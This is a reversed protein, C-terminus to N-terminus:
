RRSIPRAVDVVIIENDDAVAPPGLHRGASFPYNNDNLILIQRGGLFAVDEITEFPFAFTRGLGVDGPAAPLSIARPDDLTMLDVLLSKGVVGGPTGLTIEQITKFGDLRGQSPDREIVLGSTPGTMIFDGINTGRADLPYRWASGTYRRTRLDFQHILLTKPDDGALPLELLPLLTRGDSALAMGEFGGSRAARFPHDLATVRYPWFLGALWPTNKGDEDQLNTGDDSGAAAPDDFLPFDGFLFVTRIAPFRKQVTLLTSFDFSQIDARAELGHRTIVRAVKRAFREGNITRDRFRRLPNVKTEINYRVRAANKWRRAADHAGAGPGTRYHAVYADVFAFVQELSPMAYLHPLGSASAFASAVPSLAPDNKQDPGRFLKDCIFRGQLDDFDLDKLLVEASAEYPAGDARRCKQAQVHPDHDLVVVGDATIGTDLELTTMLHDLAAEMAPLTNEPRLDRAGRHGQADFRAGDILGDADILDSPTGDGNADFAQVAALLLDPRDSIIGDVGLRMLKGMQAADNVTWTVVPYGAQKLSAVDFIESSAAAVGSGPPPSQRSDVFTTPDDDKLLVSWPSFVPARTGGHRAAHGHVANMIRVASAEENLPNQPSRVQVHGARSFDPLPHPAELLRGKRDFHLLFPGFEDGIWLSGDPARQVSEIDFDAGTLRRDHTFEGAIAWPIKRHPDSLQIFDLVKARGGGDRATEFDVSLRYLRLLFDASNEMRGFGNDSLALISGDEEALVGSFGQVPQASFPVNQGNVPATGLRSGAPPGAAFTAAPLVARGVLTPRSPAPQRRLEAVVAQVDARPDEIPAGPAGDDDLDNACTFIAPACLLPLLRRALRPKCIEM